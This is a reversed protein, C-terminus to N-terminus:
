RTLLTEYLSHISSVVRDVSFHREARLRGAAGMRRALDSERVLRLIAAALADTDQPPVLLGTEEPVVAEPVGGVPTSIVPLGCAMAELIAMPLGEDLSPLVMVDAARLVDAVDSRWGLFHVSSDVGLQRALAELQARYGPAITEGGLALYAVDPAKRAVLSAARLFTPYGKVESLHGVILVVHRAGRRLPSQSRDADPSPTYTATDIGNPIAIVRARPCVQQVVPAVDRAQGEYCGVVVEVGLRFVWELEKPGPPFGLHCIRATRTALGALAAPRYCTQAMSHVIRTRTRIMALSLRMAQRLFTLRNGAEDGAPTDLVVTPFGREAAWELLPGRRPLAIMPRFRRRDIGTAIDMLVRNGGGLKESNAVYLVTTM